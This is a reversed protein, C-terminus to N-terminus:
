TGPNNKTVAAVWVPNSTNSPTNTWTVNSTSGDLGTPKMAITDGAAAGKGLETITLTLTGDSDKAFTIGSVEKTKAFPKVPSGSAGIDCKTFDGANEQVCVAIATKISDAASIAAAAKAKLTYESYAPIAVAALIGIIAVVIMLEILTFGAQAQQKIQKM